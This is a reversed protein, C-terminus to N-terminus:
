LETSVRTSPYCRFRTSTIWQQVKRSPSYNRRCRLTLPINEASSCKIRSPTVNELIKARIDNNGRGDERIKIKSVKRLRRGFVMARWRVGRFTPLAVNWLIDVGLQFFFFEGSGNFIGKLM